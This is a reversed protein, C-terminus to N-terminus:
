IVNMNLRFIIKLIIILHNLSLPLSLFSAWRSQCTGHAHFCFDTKSMLIIPPFTFSLSGYRAARHILYGGMLFWWSIQSICCADSYFFPIRSFPLFSLLQFSLPSGMGGAWGPPFHLLFASFHAEGASHPIPPTVEFVLLWFHCWADCFDPDEPLLPFGGAM